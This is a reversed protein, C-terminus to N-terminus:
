RIVEGKENVGYISIRKLIESNIQSRIKGCYRDWEALTEAKPIEGVPEIHYRGKYLSGTDIAKYIGSQAIEITKIVTKRHANHLVQRKGETDYVNYLNM